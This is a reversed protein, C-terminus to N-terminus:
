PFDFSALSKKHVLRYPLMWVGDHADNWKINAICITDVCQYCVSCVKRHTSNKM